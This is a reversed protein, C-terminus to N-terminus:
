RFPHPGVATSPSRRRAEPRARELADEDDSHLTMVPQGVSVSDGIEVDLRVGATPSVPDTQVSRGAGLDWAARGVGMADIDAVVGDQAAAITETHRAVPLPADPDGGQATVMARWRDMADGSDLM